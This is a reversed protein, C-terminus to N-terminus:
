ACASVELHRSDEVFPLQGLEVPAGNDPVVLAALQLREALYLAAAAVPTVALATSHAEAETASRAVVTVALPGASASRGTAPDILHHNMGGPGFRRQAPGSTAVGGQALRLLGLTAGPVRADAVALLWRGGEPPAGWVAVDGGLDVLGGPVDPWAERMALLARDAAFGKGIGGLDVAAGLPIRARLAPPDLDVAAGPRWGSETVPPREELQEYSRDYGAATLAPLITPDYRGGTQERADLAAVLAEMLRVGVPAWRGNARNLGCLESAQDFRSLARECARAEDRGAVLARRALGADRYGGTVAVVCETSMAVFTERYLRAAIM